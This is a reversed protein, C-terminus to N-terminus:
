TGSERVKIVKLSVGSGISLRAALGEASEDKSLLFSVTRQLFATKMRSANVGKANRLRRIARDFAQEDHVGVVELVVYHQGTAKALEISEHCYVSAAKDGDCFGCALAQPTSALFLLTALRITTSSPTAPIM